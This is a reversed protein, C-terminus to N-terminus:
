KKVANPKPLPKIDAQTLGLGKLVKPKVGSGKNTIKNYHGVEYKTPKKVKGTLLKKQREQKKAKATNFDGVSKGVNKIGNKLQVGAKAVKAGVLGGIVAGIM